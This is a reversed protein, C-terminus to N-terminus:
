ACASVRVYAPVCVCECACVRVYAPVLVLVHCNTGQIKFVHLKLKNHLLCVSCGGVFVQVCECVCLCKFM